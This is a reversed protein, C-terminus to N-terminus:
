TNILSMKRYFNTYKWKIQNFIQAELKARECLISAEIKNLNEAQMGFKHLEVALNERVQERTITGAIQDAYIKHLVTDLNEKQRVQAVQLQKQGIEYQKLKSFHQKITDFDGM